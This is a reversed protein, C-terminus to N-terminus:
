KCHLLTIDTVDTVFNKRFCGVYPFSYHSDRTDLLRESENRM